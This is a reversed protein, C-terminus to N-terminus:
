APKPAHFEPEALITLVLAAIGLPAFALLAAVAGVVALVFHRRKLAAYGGVIAFVGTSFTLLAVPLFLVLPLAALGEFPLDRVQSLLGSGLIGLGLLPITGIVSCVGAVLDLVGAATGKWTTDM